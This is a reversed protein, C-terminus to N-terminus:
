KCRRFRRNYTQWQASAATKGRMQVMSQGDASFDGFETVMSGLNKDTWSMTIVNGAREYRVVPYKITRGGGLEFSYESAAFALGVGEGCWNGLLSPEAAPAAAEPPPQVAPAVATSGNAPSSTSATSTSTPAPAREAVQPSPTAAVPKPDVPRLSQLAPLDVLARQVAALYANHAAPDSALDALRRKITAVWAPNRSRYSEPAAARYTEVLSSLAARDIAGPSSLLADIRRSAATEIDTLLQKFRPDDRQMASGSRAFQWAAAIDGSKLRAQASAVVADALMAPADRVVFVDDKAAIKQLEALTSRARDFRGARIENGFRQKAADVRAALEEAAREVKNRESAQTWQTRKTQLAASKPTLQEAKDLLQAAVTFRKEGILRGAADLYTAAM